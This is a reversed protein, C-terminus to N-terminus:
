ASVGQPPPAKSAAAENEFVVESPYSERVTDRHEGDMFSRRRFVYLGLISFLRLTQRVLRVNSSQDEERWSIPFFKVRWRMAMHALVMFYNFTLADAFRLYFRSKLAEVRYMNLGSGLDTIWRGSALSFMINFVINGLTRLGSYGELRSGKMFRSGLLADYQRHIGASLVPVLDHLDAQDDGHLIVAYDFGNQIAYEFAVKQSGGLNYNGVNRLVRGAVSIKALAESAVAVTRDPSGNDIVIVESIYGATHQDIQAIVRAIQEECRYAPIFLLIREPVNMETM